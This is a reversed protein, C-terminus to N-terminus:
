MRGPEGSINRCSHPVGKPLTIGGRGNGRPNERQDRHPSGAIIVLKEAENRHLHM